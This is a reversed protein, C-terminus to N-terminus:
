LLHLQEQKIHEVQDQYIRVARVHSCELEKRGRQCNCTLRGMLERITYTTINYGPIPLCQYLGDTIRSILGLELLKKVKQNVPQAFTRTGANYHQITEVM